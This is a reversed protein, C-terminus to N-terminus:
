RTEDKPIFLQMGNQSCGVYGELVRNARAASQRTMVAFGAVVGDVTTVPVVESEPSLARGWSPLVASLKCWGPATDM